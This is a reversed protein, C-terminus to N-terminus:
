ERGATAQVTAHSSSASVTQPQLTALPAWPPYVNLSLTGLHYGVACAGAAGLVVRRSMRLLELVRLAGPAHAAASTPMISVTAKRALEGIKFTPREVPERMGISLLQRALTGRRASIGRGTGLAAVAAFIATTATATATAAATTTTHM